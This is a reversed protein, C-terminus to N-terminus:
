NGLLPDLVFPQKKGRPATPAANTGYSPDFLTPKTAATTDTQGPEVSAVPASATPPLDLPGKRGCGALALAVMSLLIVAWGSSKPCLNRNVVSDGIRTAGYLSQRASALAPFGRLQLSIQAM